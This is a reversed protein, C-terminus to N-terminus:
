RLNGKDSETSHENQTQENGLDSCMVLEKKPLWSFIDTTVCNEVM